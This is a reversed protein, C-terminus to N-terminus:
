FYVWPVTNERKAREKQERKREKRKGRARRAGKTHEQSMEGRGKGRATHKVANQEAEVM